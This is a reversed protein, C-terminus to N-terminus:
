CRRDEWGGEADDDEAVAAADAAQKLLGSDDISQDNLRPLVWLHRLRCGIGIDGQVATTIDAPAGTSM